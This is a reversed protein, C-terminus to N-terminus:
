DHQRQRKTEKNSPRQACPFESITPNLESQNVPIMFLVSLIMFDFALVMEILKKNLTLNYVVLGHKM